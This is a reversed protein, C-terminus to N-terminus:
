ARDKPSAPGAAPAVWPVGHCLGCDKSLDGADRPQGLDTSRDVPVVQQQPPLVAVERPPRFRRLLAYITLAVTALVTVEGLTDFARFDVLMVNIVNTGGGAPLANELFFPSISQYGTRTLMAYSLTSLGTGALVAIVLDRGRRWRARWAEDVEQAPIRKPLWRLGLLLLVMTVAEVVLQTLALDPASFWAFTLCVALGVIGLLALALLRHFKAQWAAGIAAAGGALWILVFDATAPVRARDGWDLPVVLASGLAAAGAVVVMWLMQHQLHRSGTRASATRAALNALALIREFSRKGDFRNLLPTARLARQKFRAAFAVYLATGGALAVLSMVLPANFGHWIALSYAPLEGGVVPRSATALVPGVSWEPVIGVVLCAVVLLAIPIRM